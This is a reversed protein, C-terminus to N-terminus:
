LQFAFEQKRRFSHMRKSHEIEELKSELCTAFGTEMFNVYNISFDVNDSIIIMRKQNDMICHANPKVITNIQYKERLLDIVQQKGITQTLYSFRYTHMILQNEFFHLELTTKHDGLFIRYVLVTIKGIIHNNVVTHNPKGYKNYIFRKPNKTFEPNKSFVIDNNTRLAQKNEIAAIRRYADIRGYQNKIKDYYYSSIYHLMSDAVSRSKRKFFGNM